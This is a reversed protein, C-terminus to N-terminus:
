GSAPEALEIDLLRELQPITAETGRSAHLPAGPAATM